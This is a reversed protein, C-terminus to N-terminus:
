LAEAAAIIDEDKRFSSSRPARWRRTPIRAVVRKLPKGGHGAETIATIVGEGIGASHRGEDVVLIRACEGAHRAIAPENLPAGAM